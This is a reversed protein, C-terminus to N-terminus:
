RREAAANLWNKVQSTLDAITADIWDIRLNKASEKLRPKTTIQLGNDVVACPLTKSEFARARNRRKHGVVALDSILSQPNDSPVLLLGDCGSLTRINEDERQNAALPDSPVQEPADPFVGYGAATLAAGITEWRAQDQARAHVYIAQGSARQLSAVREQEIHRQDLAAKLQRMRTSIQAAIQVVARAFDPSDPTPKPWGFPRTADKDGPREHFWVGVPPNGAEDCLDAHWDSNETPWIRAFFIGQQQIDPAQSKVHDGGVFSPRNRWWLREDRCWTSKFYHPSILLLLLASNSAASRLDGTLPAHPDLQHEPRQSEDLFISVNDLAPLLRLEAELARAFAISWLMLPTSGSNGSDGRGYSIFLDHRFSPVLVGM